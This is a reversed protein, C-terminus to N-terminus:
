PNRSTRVASQTRLVIEAAGGSRVFPEYHGRTVSTRGVHFARVEVAHVPQEDPRGSESGMRLRGAPVPVADIRPRDFSM